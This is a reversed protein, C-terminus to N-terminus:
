VVKIEEASLQIYSRLAVPSIEISLSLANLLSASRELERTPTDDTATVTQLSAICGLKELRM